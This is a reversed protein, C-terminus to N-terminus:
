KRIARYKTKIARIVARLVILGLEALIIQRLRSFLLLKKM